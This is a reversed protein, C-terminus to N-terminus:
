QGNVLASVLLGFLGGLQPPRKRQAIPLWLLLRGFPPPRNMGEQHVLM